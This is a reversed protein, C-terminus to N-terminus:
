AVSVATDRITETVLVHSLNIVSYIVFDIAGHLFNGCTPNRLAFGNVCAATWSVLAESGATVSSILISRIV